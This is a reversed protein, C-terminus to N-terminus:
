IGFLILGSITVLYSIANLFDNASVVRFIRQDLNVYEKRRPAPLQGSEYIVISLETLAQQSKLTDVYRWFNLNTGGCLRKFGSHFGEIYNNSRNQYTLVNDYQNWVERSFRSNPSLWTREFYDSIPM